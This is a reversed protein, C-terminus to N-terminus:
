AGLGVGLPEAQQHGRPAAVATGTPDSPEDLGTAALRQRQSSDREEIPDDEDAVAVRRSRELPQEVAREECVAREVVREDRRRREREGAQRADRESRRILM